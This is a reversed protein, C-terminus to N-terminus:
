WSLLPNFACYTVKAELASEILVISDASPPACVQTSAVVTEPEASVAAMGSLAAVKTFM